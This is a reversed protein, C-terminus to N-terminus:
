IVRASPVRIVTPVLFLARHALSVRKGESAIRAKKSHIFLLGFRRDHALRVFLLSVQADCSASFYGGHAPISSFQCLQFVEPGRSLTGRLDRTM